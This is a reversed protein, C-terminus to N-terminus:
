QVRDMNKFINQYTAPRTSGRGILHPGGRNWGARAGPGTRFGPRATRTITPGFGVRIRLDADGGPVRRPGSTGTLFLGGRQWGARAGFGAFAGNSRMGGAAEAASPVQAALVSGLVLAIGLAKALPAPFLSAGQPRTM